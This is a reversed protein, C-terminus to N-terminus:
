PRITFSKPSLGMTDCAPDRLWHSLASPSAYVNQTEIRGQLPLHCASPRVSPPKRAPHGQRIAGEVMSRM